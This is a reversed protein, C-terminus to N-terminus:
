RASWSTLADSARQVIASLTRGADRERQEARRLMARREGAAWASRTEDLRQAAVQRRGSAREVRGLTQALIKRLEAARDARGTAVRDREFCRLREIVGRAMEITRAMEGETMTARAVDRPAHQVLLVDILSPTVGSSPEKETPEM